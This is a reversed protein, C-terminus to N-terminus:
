IEKEFLVSVKNFDAAANIVKLYEQFYEKPYIPDEYWEEIIVTVKNGEIQYNSKFIAKTEGEIVLSEDFIMKEPNAMKYGEPVEFEITRYYARAYANYIDYNRVSDEDYMTMQPGILKGVNLLIDQGASEMFRFDTLRAEAQLPKIGLYVAKANHVFLDKVEAEEDIYSVLSERIEKLDDEDEILDFIGQYARASFGTLARYVKVENDIMDPGFVVEAKITDSTFSAPKFPIEQISTVAVYEDGLLEREIFLGQNATFNFNIVGNRSLSETPDIYLDEDPIYFLAEDLYNNTEFDADFYLSNRNTTYIFQYPIELHDFLKGYFRIAGVTNFVKNERMFELDSLQPAGANFYSYNDKIYHEIRNTLSFNPHEDVLYDQIEKAEKKIVKEGSRDLEMGLFDAVNQATYNYSTIDRDGTYLNRDLKFAVRGKLADDPSVSESEFAPVKAHLYIRNQNELSTDIVVSDELNYVKSTFILNWPTIVDLEFDQIEIDEQYTIMLGNTNPSFRNIYYYEVESGVELGEFAFYNYEEDSDEVVGTQIDDGDIETVKGGNIARARFKLLESGEGTPIYKRNFEELARTSNIYIRRHFLRDMVLRNDEDYNYDYLLKEKLVVAATSDDVEGTYAAQEEEWDYEEYDFFIDSDQASLQLGFLLLFSFLIKNLTM